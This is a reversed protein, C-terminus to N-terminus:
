SVLYSKAVNSPQGGTLVPTTNYLPVVDYGSGKKMIKFSHQHQQPYDVTLTDIKDNDEMWFRVDRWDSAPIAYRQRLNGDFGPLNLAYPQSSGDKLFYTGYEDQTVGGVYYSLLPKGELDFIEVHIGSVAM